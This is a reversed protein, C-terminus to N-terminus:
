AVPSIGFTAMFSFFASSTAANLAVCAGSFGSLGSAAGSAAGAAVWSAGFRGFLRLLSAVASLLCASRPGSPLMGCAAVPVARALDDLRRDLRQVLALELVPLLHDVHIALPQQVRRLRQHRADSM